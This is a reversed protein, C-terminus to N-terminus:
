RATVAHTAAERTFPGVHTGPDVLTLGRGEVGRDVVDIGPENKAM